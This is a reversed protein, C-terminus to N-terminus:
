WEDGGGRASRPAIVGPALAAAALAGLEAELALVPPAPAPLAGVLLDAGDARHPLKGGNSRIADRIGGVM